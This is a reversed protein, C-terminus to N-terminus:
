RLGRRMAIASVVAALLALSATSSGTQSTMDCECCGGDDWESDLSELYQSCALPTPSLLAKLADAKTLPLAPDAQYGCTTTKGDELAYTGSARPVEPEVGDAALVFGLYQSGEPEERLDETLTLRQGVHVHPSANHVEIVEYGWGKRAYTVLALNPQGVFGRGCICDSRKAACYSPQVLAIEERTFGAAGLWAAFRPDEAIEGVTAFNMRARLTLALDAEGTFDLLHAVACRTGDEDIFVPQREGPAHRNKPFSGRAAYAEVEDLLLARVKRQAPDLGVPRRRRLLWLAARFHSQVAAVEELSALSEFHHM